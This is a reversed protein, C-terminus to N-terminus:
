VHARGIKSHPLGPNLGQTSFIEQLLFHFGVGTNKGPFGMSLVAQCAVTRPNVFLRVLSLSKARMKQNNLQESMSLEKHGWPTYGTLSRQGHSKWALISSHTAMEEELAFVRKSQLM